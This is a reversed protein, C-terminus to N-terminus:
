MILEHYTCLQMRDQFGSYLSLAPVEMLSILYVTNQLACRTKHNLIASQFYQVQIRHKPRTEAGLCTYKQGTRGPSTLIEPNLTWLGLGDIESHVKLNVYVLM